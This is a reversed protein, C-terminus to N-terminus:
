IREKLDTRKFGSKQIREKPGARKPGGKPGSKQVREKPGARQVREKSDARKSGSKQIREKSGSKQDARKSEGKQVQKQWGSGQRAASRIISGRRRPDMLRTVDPLVLEVGLSAGQQHAYPQTRATPPNNARTPLPLIILGPRCDHARARNKARVGVM